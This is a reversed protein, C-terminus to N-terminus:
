SFYLRNRHSRIIRLRIQWRHITRVLSQHSRWNAASPETQIVAGKSNAPRKKTVKKQWLFFYCCFFHLLIFIGM